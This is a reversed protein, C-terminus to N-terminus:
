SCRSVACAQDGERRSSRMECLKSAPSSAPPRLAGALTSRVEIKAGALLTVRLAHSSVVRHTWGQDNKGVVLPPTSVCSSGGVVPVGGRQASKGEGM